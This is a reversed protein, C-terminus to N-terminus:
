AKEEATAPAITTEVCEIVKTIPPANGNEIVEWLSYDIMQIYQEMRMRWLEYEGPKLMPVKSAAVMHVSDQDMDKDKRYSSSGFSSSAVTPTKQYGFKLGNKNQFWIM